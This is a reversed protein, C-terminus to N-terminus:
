DPCRCQMSHHFMHIYIFEVRMQESAPLQAAGAPDLPVAQVNCNGDCILDKEVWGEGEALRPLVGILGRGRAKPKVEPQVYSV